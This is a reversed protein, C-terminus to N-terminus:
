FGQNHAFLGGFGSRRSVNAKVGENTWYSVKKSSKEIEGHDHRRVPNPCLNMIFFEALRHILREGLTSSRLKVRKSQLHGTFFGDMCIRAEYGWQSNIGM